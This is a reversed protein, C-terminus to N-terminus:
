FVEDLLFLKLFFPGPGQSRNKKGAFQPKERRLPAKGPSWQDHLRLAERKVYAQLMMQECFYNLLLLPINRHKLFVHRSVDRGPHEVTDMLASM